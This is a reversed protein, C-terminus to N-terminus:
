KEVKLLENLAGSLGEVADSMKKLFPDKEGTALEHVSKGKELTELLDRFKQIRNRINELTESMSEAAKEIAGDDKGLSNMECLKGVRAASNTFTELLRRIQPKSYDIFLKMTDNYHLEGFALSLHIHLFHIEAVLAKEFTPFTTTPQTNLAQYDRLRELIEPDLIMNAPQTLVHFHIISPLNTSSQFSVCDKPSSQVTFHYNILLCLLIQQQDAKIGSDSKAILYFTLLHTAM